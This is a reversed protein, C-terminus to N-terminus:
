NLDTLVLPTPSIGNTGGVNDLVVVTTISGATATSALDILPTKHANATIIVSYGGEVPAIQYTSSQEYGLGSIQPTYDTLDTGPPVIYVDLGHTPSNLSADVIRYELTDATPASNNDVIVLPPTDSLELGVAVVTYSTSGNLLLTGVPTIPNTTDGPPFGDVNILGSVVSEYVAPTAPPPYVGGFPLSAAIRIGNFYIDVPQSDPVANILRVQTVTTSRCSVTMMGLAALALAAPVTILLRSM